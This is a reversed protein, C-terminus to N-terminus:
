KGNNLKKINICDKSYYNLVQSVFEIATKVHAEYKSDFLTRGKNLFVVIADLSM